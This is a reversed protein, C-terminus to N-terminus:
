SGRLEEIVPAFAELVTIYSFGFRARHERLQGAMQTPTGILMTPADLIQDEDLGLGQAALKRAISRRDETIHVRQVLVNLEAPEPRGAAYEQYAAVTAALREAPLLELTGEPKGPAQRAGAFAAIQAHRAALRLMRPGNGGILLPPRPREGWAVM